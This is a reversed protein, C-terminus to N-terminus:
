LVDKAGPRAAVLPALPQLDNDRPWARAPLGALANRVAFRSFDQQDYPPSRDATAQAAEPGTFLRKDVPM